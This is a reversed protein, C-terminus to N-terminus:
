NSICPLADVNYKAQESLPLWTKITYIRSQHALRLSAKKLMVQDVSNVSCTTQSCPDTYEVVTSDKQEFKILLMRFQVMKAEVCKDEFMSMRGWFLELFKQRANKYQDSDPIATSIIAAQEVAEAYVKMQEQYFSKQYERAAEAREQRSNAIYQWLTAFIGIAITTGQLLKIPGDLRDFFTKPKASHAKVENRYMEESRIKDKELETLM